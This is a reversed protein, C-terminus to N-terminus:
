RFLRFRQKASPVNLKCQSKCEPRTVTLTKWRAVLASFEIRLRRWVDCLNMEDYISLKLKAIGANNRNVSKLFYSSFLGSHQICSSLLSKLLTLPLYKLVACPFLVVHFSFWRVCLFVSIFLCPMLAWRETGSKGSYEHLEEAGSWQTLPAPVQCYAGPAPPIPLHPPFLFM